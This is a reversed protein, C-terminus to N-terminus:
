KVLQGNFYLHGNEVYLRHTRDGSLYLSDGVFVDSAVELVDEFSASGSVTLDNEFYADGKVHVQGSTNKQIYHNADGFCLKRSQTLKNQTYQGITVDTNITGALSLTGRMTVAETFTMARTVQGDLDGAIGLASVAGLAYIGNGGSFKLMNNTYDWEIYGNGIKLKGDATFRAAEIPDTGSGGGTSLIIEHGCLQTDYGGTKTTGYGIALRNVSNLFMSRMHAGTSDRLTVAQDNDLVIGYGGSGSARIAGAVDLKYDNPTTTGIGVNGSPKVVMWTDNYARGIYMYNLNDNAGYSGFQGLSTSGSSNWASFSYAWGGSGARVQVQGAPHLIMQRSGDGQPLWFRGDAGFYFEKRNDWSDQLNTFISVADDNGIYMLEGGGNSIQSAMTAASEGGGIITAGGGGIAIGNGWQDSKNDIFTIMDYTAKTGKYAIAQTLRLKGDPMVSLVETQPTDWDAVSKQFVSLRKRGHSGEYIAQIYPSINPYNKNTYFAIKQSSDNTTNNPNAMVLDANMWLIGTLPKGSGATLPLYGALATNMAATTAYNTQVNSAFEQFDTWPTYEMGARFNGAHWVASGKWTLTTPTISLGYSGAYYDSKYESLCAINISNLRDQTNTSSGQEERGYMFHIGGRIGGDSGSHQNLLATLGIAHGFRTAYSDASLMSKLNVGGTLTGGTLPLYGALVDTVGLSSMSIFSQWNASDILTHWAGWASANTGGSDNQRWQLHDIVTLQWKDVADGIQLGVYDYGSRLAGSGSWAFSGAIGDPSTNGAAYHKLESARTAFPVTLQNTTGAKTCTVYDGSVGLSQVFTSGVYNYLDQIDASYAFGRTYVWQQTAYAALSQHQTLYGQQEVWAKTAYASLDPTPVQMTEAVWYGNRYTLVQGASPTGGINVDLLERLYTAGAAGGGDASYGLAAVAGTAMINGVVHLKETPNTTGIGVNGDATAALVAEYSSDTKKRQIYVGNGIINTPSAKESTTGRGLWLEEGEYDLVQRATGDSDKFSIHNDTGVTLNGDFSGKPVGDQWYTQGWATYINNGDLRLARKAVGNADFCSELATLRGTAATMQAATAADTIGYESLKTPTNTIKSWPWTTPFDSIKSVTLTPIDAPALTKSNIATVHGLADVTVSSLVRGAAAAITKNAGNTPHVYKNAGEEIGNLKALLIDTFDNASLGKGSEKAVYNSAVHSVVSDCAQQVYAEKAYGALSQHQTLPTISNGGLYITGGDIYYRGDHDHESPTFTQPKGTINNWAVTSPMDGGGGPEVWEFASGTWHLYGDTAPVPEDNLLTLLPGLAVDGGGGAASYGLASVSGLAALGRSWLGVGLVDDWSLVGEGLMLRAGDTLTLDDSTPITVPMGDQWFTRGWATHPEDDALRLAKNAAGDTFYGQLAALNSELDSIAQNAAQQTSLSGYAITNVWHRESPTNNDPESIVGQLFIYFFDASGVQEGDANKGYVDLQESPFVITAQTGVKSTRPIACYVYKKTDSNFYTPSVSLPWRRPNHDVGYWLGDGNGPEGGSSEPKISDVFCIIVAGSAASGQTRNPEARANLTITIANYAIWYDKPQTIYGIAM